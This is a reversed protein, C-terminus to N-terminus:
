GRRPVAASGGSWEGRFAVEAPGTLTVDWGGAQERFDVELTDGGATCVRVPSAAGRGAAWLASAIAGSGCALTEGEVGREFTRMAIRGAGLDAVFDVNTGDPAFAAHRRLAAGWEGVPVRELPPAEVVFHPVGPRFSRGEFARGEAELRMAPGGAEIRGVRLAIRDDATRRASQVGADTRFRVEGGRGLGRELAHRAICRAGNGCFEARGGDANYYGMAFDLEPDPELVLVGDAGVGRRRDCVRAVWAALPEPLARGRGDVVVFDNAAGHMKVFPLSV